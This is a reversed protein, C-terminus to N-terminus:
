LKDNPVQEWVSLVVINKQFPRDRDLFILNLTYPLFIFGPECVYVCFGCFTM